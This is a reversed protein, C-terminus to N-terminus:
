PICKLHSRTRHNTRSECGPRDKGWFPLTPDASLAPAWGAHTLIHPLADYSIKLKRIDPDLNRIAELHKCEWTTHPFTGTHTGCMLCIDTHHLRAKHLDAIAWLEGSLISELLPAYPHPHNTHTASEIHKDIIANDNGLGTLFHKRRITMKHAKEPKEDPDPLNPISARTLSLTLSVDIEWHLLFAPRSIGMVWFDATTNIKRITTKLHNIPTYM